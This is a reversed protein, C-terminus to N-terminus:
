LVYFSHTWFNDRFLVVIWRRAGDDSERCCTCNTSCIMYGWVWLTWSTFGKVLLIGNGLKLNWWWVGLTFHLTGILKTLVFWMIRFEFLKSTTVSCNCWGCRPEMMLNAGFYLIKDELNTYKCLQIEIRRNSTPEFQSRIHNLQM